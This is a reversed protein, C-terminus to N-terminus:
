SDANNEIDHTDLFDDIARYLESGLLYCRISVDLYEYDERHEWMDICFERITDGLLEQNGQLAEQAKRSNFFYSGSGNWTVSDDIRLEDYIEQIANERDNLFYERNQSQSFRYDLFDMIDNYVNERCNYIMKYIHFFLVYKVVLINVLWESFVLM